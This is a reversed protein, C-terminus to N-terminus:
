AGEASKLYALAARAVEPARHSDRSLEVNVLGRYGIEALARLIPPYDM